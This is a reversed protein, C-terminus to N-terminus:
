KDLYVDQCNKLQMRNGFQVYELTCKRIVVNEGRTQVDSVVPVTSTCATLVIAALAIVILLKKM